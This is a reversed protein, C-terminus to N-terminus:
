AAAKKPSLLISTLCGVVVDSKCWCKEMGERVPM